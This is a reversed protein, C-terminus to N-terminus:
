PTKVHIDRYFLWDERNKIPDLENHCLAIAEADHLKFVSCVVEKEDNVM